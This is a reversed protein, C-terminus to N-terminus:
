SDRDRLRFMSLLYPTGTLSSEVDGDYGLVRVDENSLFAGEVFYGPDDRLKRSLMNALYQTLSHHEGTGVGGVEKGLGEATGPTEREVAIALQYATVYPEGFPHGEPARPVTRLARRVRLEMERDDWLSM